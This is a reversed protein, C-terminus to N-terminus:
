FALPPPLQYTGSEQIGAVPVPFCPSTIYLVKKLTLSDFSDVLSETTGSTEERLVYNTYSRNWISWPSLSGPEWSESERM